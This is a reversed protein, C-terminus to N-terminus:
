GRRGVYNIVQSEKSHHKGAFYDDMCIFHNDDLLFLEDGTTPEKKCSSCTFCRVHFVANRARRVLDEPSIGRSCGSCKVGFLRCTLLRKPFHEVVNYCLGIYVSLGIYDLFSVKRYYYKQIIIILPTTIYRKHVKHLAYM